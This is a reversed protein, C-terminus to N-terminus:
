LNVHLPGLDGSGERRTGCVSLSRRQSVSLTQSALSPAGRRSRIMNMTLKRTLKAFKVSLETIMLETIVLSELNM